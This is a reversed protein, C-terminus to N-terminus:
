RLRICGFDTLHDLFHRMVRHINTNVRCGFLRVIMDGVQFGLKAIEQIESATRESQGRTINLGMLNRQFLDAMLLLRFFEDDDPSFSRSIGM